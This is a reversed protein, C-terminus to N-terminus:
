GAAMGTIFLVTVGTQPLLALVGFLRERDVFRLLKVDTTELTSGEWM